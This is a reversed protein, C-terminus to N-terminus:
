KEKENILKELIKKLANNQSELVPSGPEAAMDEKQKGQKKNEPKSESINKNEQGM